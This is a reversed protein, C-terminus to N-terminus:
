RILRSATDIAVADVPGVGITVTGDAAVTVTPGTCHDGARQGHVVDCYTGGALGTPYARAPQPTTAANIAIWGTAHEAPGRSFAIADAGDSWWHAVTPDAHTANHFGVMGVVAPKAHECSWQPGCAVPTVHGEADGPPSQDFATFTFSSHVSPTGYNWALMFITALDYVSGDQYSLTSGDRETDHNSVFVVAKDSPEYVGGTGFGELGSIGTRFQGRLNSAYSFELVSGLGEYDAMPPSGPQVEQAWFSPARTLKARIAALDAVPIHKAADIRFGDVGLSMLDNLYGAIQDRVHDSETRLDALGLLECNQVQTVNTWDAIQGDATPCDGPYSHFDGPTYGAEPYHRDPTFTAGGYGRPGMQDAGTMHNVVADVYVDVGAAHCASVMAAFEARTGFRSDLDYGVPQYVDWWPHGAADLSDEPPAVQVAGYGAPGLVATCEHAVSVWPWEWLSAIVDNGPQAGAQTAPRNLRWLVVATGAVVLAAAALIATLRRRSLLV